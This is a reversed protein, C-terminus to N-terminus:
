GFKGNKCIYEYMPVDAGIELEVCFRFTMELTRHFARFWTFGGCTWPKGRFDFSPYKEKFEPPVYINSQNDWKQYKDAEEIGEWM